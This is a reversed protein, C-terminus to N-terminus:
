HSLLVDWGGAEDGTRTRELEVLGLRLAKDADDGLLVGDSV